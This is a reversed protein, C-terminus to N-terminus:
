AGEKARLIFLKSSFDGNKQKQKEPNGSSDDSVNLGIQMMEEGYYVEKENEIEYEVFPILGKLPLRKFGDNITQLVKYYAVIAHKKDESVIMWAAYNGEFPNELRYFEGNQILERYKEYVRNPM